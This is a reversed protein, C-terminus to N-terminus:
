HVLAGFVFPSYAGSAPMHGQWMQKEFVLPLCKAGNELFGMPSRSGQKKLLIKFHQCM